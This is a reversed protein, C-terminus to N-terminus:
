VALLRNIKTIEDFIEDQEQPIETCKHIVANRCTKRLAERGEVKVLQVWNELEIITCSGRDIQKDMCITHIKEWADYMESLLEQDGLHVNGEIRELVFDKELESTMFNEAWRRNVSPDIPRCSQYGINDTFITLAEPHRVFSRGNKRLVMAGPRSYENLGVLVGTKKIRSPEQIECLWGYRLAKAYNSEVLKFKPTGAGSDAYKSAAKVVAIYKEDAAQKRRLEEDRARQIAELDFCGDMLVENTCREADAYEQDREAKASAETVVAKMKGSLAIKKYAAQLCMEPTAEFDGIGTLKRYTIVPNQEMEEWTPLECIAEDTEDVPVYEDLFDTISTEESCSMVVFPKGLIRALQRCGTSKGYGTVGRWSFNNLPKTEDRTGVFHAALDVVEPMVLADDRVDPDTTPNPVMEKEWEQLGALSKERYVAISSLKMLDAVTRRQNNEDSDDGFLLVPTGTYVKGRLIGKQLRQDPIQVINGADFAAEEIPIGGFNVGWYLFDCLKYVAEKTDDCIGQLKISCMLEEFEQKVDDALRSMDSANFALLLAAMIFSRDKKKLNEIPSQDIKGTLPNRAFKGARLYGNGNAEAIYSVDGDALEVAYLGKGVESICLKTDPAPMAIDRIASATENSLQASGQSRKPNLKSTVGELFFDWTKMEEPRKSNNAGGGLLVSYDM